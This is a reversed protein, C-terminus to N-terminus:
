LLCGSCTLISVDARKLGVDVGDQAYAILINLFHEEINEKRNQTRKRPTQVLVAPLTQPPTLLSFTAAFPSLTCASPPCLSFDICLVPFQQMHKTAANIIFTNGRWCRRGEKLGVLNWWWFTVKIKLNPKIGTGFWQKLSLREQLLRLASYHTLSMPSQASTVLHVNNGKIYSSIMFFLYCVAYKQLLIDLWHGFKPCRRFWRSSLFERIFWYNASQVRSRNLFLTLTRSAASLFSSLFIISIM